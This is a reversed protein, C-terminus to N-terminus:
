KKLAFNLNDESLDIKKNCSIWTTREFPTQGGHSQKTGGHDTTVIILWDEQAYTSRAEITEVIDYGWEDCENCANIYNENNNGFCTGHGNNDPQEFIFFLLDPDEAAAKEAGEPKAVRKLAQYYTEADDESHIYEAPYNNRISNLIDPQHSLRTHERWSGIFTVPRGTKATKLLITEADANKMQGNDTIGSYDAGWGGTLISMWAPATSTAQQTKGGKEGGTYAAYLGGKNKIYMVASNKKDKINELGDARMGDYGIIVAKKATKGEPLPAKFHEDVLKYIVTQPLPESVKNDFINLSQLEDAYTKPDREKLGGCGGMALVCGFATVAAVTRKVISKPKEPRM